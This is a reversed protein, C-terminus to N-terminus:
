EEEKVIEFKIDAADDEKEKHMKVNLDKKEHTSKVGLIKKLEQVFDYDYVFWMKDVEEGDEEVVYCKFLYGSQGKEFSWDSVKIKKVVDNEFRLFQLRNISNTQYKWKKEAM